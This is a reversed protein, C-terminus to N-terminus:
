ALLKCVMAAGAIQLAGIEGEDPAHGFARLADDVRMESARMAVACLLGHDIFLAFVRAMGDGM